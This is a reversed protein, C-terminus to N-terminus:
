FLDVYQKRTHLGMQVDDLHEGLSSLIIIKSNYLPRFICVNDPIYDPVLREIHISFGCKINQARRGDMRDEAGPLWRCENGLRKEDAFSWGNRERGELM